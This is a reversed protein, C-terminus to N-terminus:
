FAMKKKKNAQKRCAVRKGKILPILCLIVLPGCPFLGFNFM